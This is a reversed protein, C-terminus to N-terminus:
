PVKQNLEFTVLRLVISQLSAMRDTSGSVKM